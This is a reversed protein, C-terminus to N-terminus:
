LAQRPAQIFRKKVAAAVASGVLSTKVAATKASTDSIDGKGV